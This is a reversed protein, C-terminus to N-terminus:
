VFSSVGEIVKGVAGVAIIASVTIAGRMLGHRGKRVLRQEDQLRLMADSWLSYIRAREDESGARGLADKWFEVEAKISERFTSEEAESSTGIADSVKGLSEGAAKSDGPAANKLAEKLFDISEESASLEGGKKERRLLRGLVGFNRKKADENM